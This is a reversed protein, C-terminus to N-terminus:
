SSFRNTSRITFFLFFVLTRVEALALGLIAFILISYKMKKHKNIQNKQYTKINLLQAKFIQSKRQKKTFFTDSWKQKEKRDIKYITLM